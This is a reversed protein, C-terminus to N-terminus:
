DTIIKTILQKPIAEFYFNDISIGPPKNNWIENKSEVKQRLINDRSFKTKNALVFFPKRFYECLIAAQYSGVKNVADNNKLIADAGVLVCDCDSIYKALMAETILRVKIKERALKKALIRGEFEPRSECVTVIINKNGAFFHKIIEFVTSSNSLTLIRKKDALYPLARKLMRSNLNKLRVNYLEFFHKPSLNEREISRLEHLYSQINRFSRFEILLRNIVPTPNDITAYFKQFLKNLALLLDASGSTKDALIKKLGSEFGKEAM